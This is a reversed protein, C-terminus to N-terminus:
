DHDNGEKLDDIKKSRDLDKFRDQDITYDIKCIPRFPCHACEYVGESYRIPRLDILGNKIEKINNAILDKVFEEILKGEEETFINEQGRRLAFVSSKRDFDRDMLEVVQDNIKIILGEMKFKDEFSEMVLYKSYQGRIKELEDKLPLYFAGVPLFYEIKEGNRKRKASMMYVVLQLDIGNLINYIRIEKNGTKYDIIRVYDKYRDLRDIRGELYNEDDVYVEKYLGNKSFSEEQAEIKFEGQSIQKLIQKSNQKTNDFIKGLIYKNKPDEKRTQDLNEKLAREFDEYILENLDEERLNEIDLDKIKATFNEINSHVINGIEIFDVDYEEREYPRIGYAFFYKYPCKGFTEMESVNWRNKSYLGKRNIKSLRKKDNTYVLGRTLIRYLDSLKAYEIFTKAIKKDKHSVSENRAMKWVKDMSTKALMDKSYKIDDINLVSLDIPKLDKFMKMIDILSISKNIAVNEKDSLAYSFFIKESSSIMRLMNLLERDDKKIQYIKLDINKERLKDKEVKNILFEDKSASPFFVDNMGLIIKIKSDTIRDRSFDTVLIHDKTPPIIGVNINDVAAKILNFVHSFSTRTDGLIGVLQDLIDMFKDWIQDNEEVKDLDKNEKLVEQYLEIGRKFGDHDLINFIETAFDKAKSRKKSLEYLPGLLDLLEKRIYNVQSLEEEKLKLLDPNNQYFDYDLTFYKDNLIMTNKIKRNEIYNQFSIAKAYSDEGFDYIGSRVFFFVDEKKFDYLVIRMASMWTKVIHNDSMKRTQDLFYPLDYRDFIREVQNKYEDEDTMIISFDRYRKGHFINKKIMLAINEVESTTSTSQLIGINNVKGPYVRPMYSEFNDLLHNIDSTNDKNEELNVINVEGVDRLKRIFRNAEDYIPLDHTQPNTFARGDYTLGLSVKCGLKLLEEIFEMRLESMSDFKDFYFNAEKLFDCYKISEIVYSLRDESDEYIDETEKIYSLYIKKIEKFKIKLIPDLDADEISKFFDQDFNYEKINSLLLSINEVFDINRYANKFLDLEENVDSLIKTLLMIKGTNTLAEKPSKGIKEIIFSSFSNFSLVKADMVTSCEIHDIFDMDSQLTYQEPVILFSKEKRELDKEIEKYMYISTDKTYRSVILNIM